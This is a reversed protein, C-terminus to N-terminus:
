TARARGARSTGRRPRGPRQLGPEGPKGQLFELYIPSTNFKYKRFMAEAQRFKAKIADRTLFIEKM